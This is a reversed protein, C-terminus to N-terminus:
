YGLSLMQSPAACALIAAGAGLLLFRRRGLVQRALPLTSWPKSSSLRPIM